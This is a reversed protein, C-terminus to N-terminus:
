KLWADAPMGSKLELGANPISVKVLYVLKVREKRTQIVKPTFEGEPSIFSVKGKFIRKPFTDVKVEVDQGPKVKGISTEDVFIKLDVTSLDSLTMVERGSTVVEGPEVNRSTIVGAIPAVLQTYKLQIGTQDLAAKAGKAAAESAAIEKRTLEIRALNSKAQQLITEAELLRARATDYNLKVADREKASVVGRSFLQEYRGNNRRADEMQDKVASVNAQARVVDDPLTKRYISLLTEQQQRGTVAKELNAKAQEDRAQFESMDLEALIQGKEVAQGEKVLVGSVRGGVQFSLHAQTAEITGSYYMEGRQSQWQGFYVLLAVGVFLVAVIIIIRKKM